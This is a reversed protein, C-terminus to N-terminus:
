YIKNKLLYRFIKGVHLDVNNRFHTKKIALFKLVDDNIGSNFQLSELKRTLTRISPLPMTKRVEEYGCRGCAFRLKYARKLIDIPWKPVKKINGTLFKIQTENLIPKIADLISGGNRVTRLRKMQRKTRQLKKKMDKRLRESKELLGLLRQIKEDSNETTEMRGISLEEDFLTDESSITDDAIYNENHGIDTESQNTHEITQVSTTTDIVNEKQTTQLKCFMTPIADKKLKRNGNGNKMWMEAAFHAECLVSNNSPIWDQRGTSEAWIKRRKPDRPFRCMKFGKKASNTCYDAVCGPM